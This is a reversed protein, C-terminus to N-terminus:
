KVSQKFCDCMKKTFVQLEATCCVVTCTKFVCFLTITYNLLTGIMIIIFIPLEVSLLTIVSINPLQECSHNEIVEKSM